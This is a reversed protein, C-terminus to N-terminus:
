SRRRRREGAGRRATLADNREVRVEAGLERLYHVLNWTFSDYNDVVLIRAPTARPAPRVPAVPRRRRDCIARRAQRDRRRQPKVETAARMAALSNSPM